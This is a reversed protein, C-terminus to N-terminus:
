WLQHGGLDPGEQIENRGEHSEVGRAGSPRSEVSFPLKRMGQLFTEVLDGEHKITGDM